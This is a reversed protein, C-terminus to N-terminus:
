PREETLSEALAVAHAALIIVEERLAEKYIPAAPGGYNELMAINLAVQGLAQTLERLRRDIDISVDACDIEGGNLDRALCHRRARAVAVEDLVAYTLAANPLTIEHNITM